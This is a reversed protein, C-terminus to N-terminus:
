AFTDVLGNGRRDATRVMTEGQVAGLELGSDGQKGDAHNGRNSNNGESTQRFSESSVNTQGLEVGVGALMERLRPLASEIAERVEANGSAFIATAQDNKVNLSIEIPGLQPPNLTIQASQKDQTAMWVVKQGFEAPWAHDRLNAEVRVPETGQRLANTAPGTQQSTAAQPTPASVDTAIAQTADALKQEFGALKAAPSNGQLTTATPQLTTDALEAASQALAADPKQDSGPVITPAISAGPAESFEPSVTQTKGEPPLMGAAQQALGMSALFLAPDVPTSAPEPLLAPDTVDTSALADAPLEASLQGLLLAAFDFSAISAPNEPASALPTIGPSKSPLAAIAVISPM